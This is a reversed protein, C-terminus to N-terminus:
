EPKQLTRWQCGRVALFQCAAYGLVGFQAVDGDDVQVRAAHGGADGASCAKEDAEDDHLEHQGDDGLNAHSHLGVADDPSRPLASRVGNPSAELNLSM